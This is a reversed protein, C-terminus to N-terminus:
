MPASGLTHVSSSIDTKSYTQSIWLISASFAKPSRNIKKKSFFVLLFHINLARAAFVSDFFLNCKKTVQYIWLANPLDQGFICVKYKFKHMYESRFRSHITWFTALVIRNKKRSRNMKPCLYEFVWRVRQM